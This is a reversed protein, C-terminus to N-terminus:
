RPTPWSRPPTAARSRRCRGYVISATGLIMVAVSGLALERPMVGGGLASGTAGSNAPRSLIAAVPPHGGVYVAPLWFHFPFLGLKLCFASFIVASVVIM